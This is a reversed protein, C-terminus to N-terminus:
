NDNTLNRQLVEKFFRGQRSPTFEYDELLAPSWHPDFCWVTYSIGREDFFMIIAEAYTEDGVVPIHEGREGTGVYGLETAVIPYHAAVKGFDEQWQGEWPQERKQPYPHTIYGVNKHNVPNEIVEDLLYAWNMGAVLYIKKDDVKKIESILEEMMPKWTEWSLEGFNGKDDTPENFLEFLAVTTNGKYREAMTQWFAVTEEMTAAYRDTPFKGDVMNGIAHWDLIVYMGLETAWEVGKDLLEFYYEAGRERWEGPHIPFRVVNCGWNRAEQFYELNWHGDIELKDPDSFSVGELRVVQDNEDVFANGKVKLAPLAYSVEETPTSCSFGVLLLLILIINKKM